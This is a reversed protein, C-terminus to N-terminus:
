NKRGENLYFAVCFGVYFVYFRRHGASLMLPRVSPGDRGDKGIGM